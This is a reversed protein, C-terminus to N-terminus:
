SDYLWKIMPYFYYYIFLIIVLTIYLYYLSRIIKIKPNIKKAIKYIQNIDKKGCSVLNYLKFEYGLDKLIKEQLEHYYGYRCGGGAQILINAGNDLSEILTGLTYKFPTCVFDPSYKTGLEITKATIKNPKIIEQKLVKELLYTVPISYNAM